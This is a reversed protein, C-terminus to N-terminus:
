LHRVIEHEHSVQYVIIQDAFCSCCRLLVGGTPEAVDWWGFICVTAHTGEGRHGRRAAVSTRGGGRVNWSQYLGLVAQGRM